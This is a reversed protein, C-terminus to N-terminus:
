ETAVHKTHIRLLLRGTDSYSFPPENNPALVEYVYTTSGHTERISDGRQPLAASGGLVLDAAQVLYDRSQVSEVVGVDDTLRFVTTGVVATVNVSQDGRRYAVPVGAVEKAAAIAASIYQDLAM